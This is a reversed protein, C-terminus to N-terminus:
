KSKKNNLNVQDYALLFGVPLYYIISIWSSFINGSPIIPWLTIIIATLICIQFDDLKRPKNLIKLYLHEFLKFVIMFFVILIPVAGLLGTEAFLQPYAGHPSTSCTNLNTRESVFFYKEESCRIRYMKPGIGLIPSDLFMKFSSKYFNQHEESFIFINETGIGIQDITQTYMRNQVDKNYISLFIIVFISIIVTIIRIKKWKEILLIIIMTSIMLNLFAAREGSLFIIVDILILFLIILLSLFNNTKFKFFIIGLLIPYIRSLYNGVILEDGFLSGLRGSVYDYGLLNKGTFFQLYSDSIILFFAILLSYGFYRFANEYNELIFWIALAMVGFRFYFLSSSLSFIPNISMLSSALIIFYWLIFFKFFSSRFYKYEKEVFCIVIFVITLLVCALNAFFTGIILAFPLFYFCVSLLSRNFNNIM